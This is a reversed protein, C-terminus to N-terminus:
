AHSSRLIIIQVTEGTPITLNNFAISEDGVVYNIGAKLVTQGYNVLLINDEGYVFGSIPISRTDEEATHNVFVVEDRRNKFVTVQVTEGAPITVGTFRIGHDNPIFDKNRILITQGYNVSIIEDTDPDYGEVTEYETTDEELTRTDRVIEMTEHFAKLIIFQIVDLNKFEIGEAFTVTSGNLTYDIDEKLITQGYNIFLLKDGATPMYGTVPDVVHVGESVTINTTMVRGVSNRLATWLEAIEDDHRRATSLLENTVETNLRRYESIMAEKDVRHTM